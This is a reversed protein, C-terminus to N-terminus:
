ENHFLRKNACMLCCKRRTKIFENCGKTECKRNVLFGCSIIELVSNFMLWERYMEAVEQDVEPVDRLCEETNLYTNALQRQEQAKASLVSLPHAFLAAEDCDDLDEGPNEDAAPVEHTPWDEYGGYVYHMKSMEYGLEELFLEINSDALSKYHDYKAEFVEKPYADPNRRQEKLLYALDGFHCRVRDYWSVLPLELEKCWANLLVQPRYPRERPRYKQNLPIFYQKRIDELVDFKRTVTQCKVLEEVVPIKLIYDQLDDPLAYFRNTPAQQVPPAKSSKSHTECLQRHNKGLAKGCAQGKRKGRTIVFACCPGEM